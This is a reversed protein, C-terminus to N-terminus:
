AVHHGTPLERACSGCLAFTENIAAIKMKAVVVEDPNLCRDCILEPQERVALLAAIATATLAETEIILDV